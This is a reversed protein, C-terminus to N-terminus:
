HFFTIKSHSALVTTDFGLMKNKIMTLNLLIVHLIYVSESNKDLIKTLGMSYTISKQYTIQELTPLALPLPPISHIENCIEILYLYLVSSSVNYCM